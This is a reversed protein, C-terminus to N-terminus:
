RGAADERFPGKTGRVNRHMEPVHLRPVLKGLTSRPRAVTAWGFEAGPQNDAAHVLTQLPSRQASGPDPSGCGAASEPAARAMSSNRKSQQMPPRPPILLLRALLPEETEPHRRATSGSSGADPFRSGRCRAASSPFVHPKGSDLQVSISTQSYMRLSVAQPEWCRDEAVGPITKAATALPNNRRRVRICWARGTRRRADPASHDPGTRTTRTRVMASMILVPIISLGGAAHVVDDGLDGGRMAVSATGAGIVLGTFGGHLITFAPYKQAEQAM